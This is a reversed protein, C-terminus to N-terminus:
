IFLSPDKSEFSTCSVSMLCSCSLAREAEINKAYSNAIIFCRTANCDDKVCKFKGLLFNPNDAWKQLKNCVFGKSKAKM